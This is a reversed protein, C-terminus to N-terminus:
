APVLEFVTFLSPLPIERQVAFGAQGFLARYEPATRERGSGTLILMELDMVKAFSPEPGEPVPMETVLVRAGPAMARRINRLITTCHEDDWDHVIAFLTYLDHGEPVAEFFDGAVFEGRDDVGRAALLECAPAALQPLDFVVGQLGPHAALFDGMIAGTGGGVDCVSTVGSFDYADVVFLGQVRSGESMADNFAAGAGPNIDNVYEFFEHGTAARAASDGTLFSHKAHNWMDWHWDGGFFLVWNRASWPHDRRLADSVANNRYRGDRTVGLLGRSVLFRLLRNLADADADVERALDDASRADGHLRDPLELEVAVALAKNDIMGQLHELTVVFPPALKRLGLGFADRVRSVARAM